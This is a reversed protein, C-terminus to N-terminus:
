GPRTDHTRTSDRKGKGVIVEQHRWKSYESILQTSGNLSNNTDDDAGFFWVLCQRALNIITRDCITQRGLGNWREDDESYTMM